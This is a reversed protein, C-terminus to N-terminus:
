DMKRVGGSGAINSSVQANGKYRIDGSGAVDIKLKVSAYVEADGSGAINVIAEEAKLDMARVSGSGNIETKFSKTQGKLNIDGSGTIDADVVPANIELRINASGTVGLDMKTSDSIPTEGIIDGSGYSQISSYNPSSIFIKIDRKPKLWYGDRTQITLTTGEVYTEILELLNEDGEIKVSQPGSSVYVNFSGHSAVGSFTGPNRTVTTVNGNGRVRKGGIYGCSSVIVAVPLILLLVSKM